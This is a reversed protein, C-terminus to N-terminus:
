RGAPPGSASSASWTGNSSKEVWRGQTLSKGDASLVATLSYDNPDGISAFTLTRTGRDYVCPGSIGKGSNASSVELDCANSYQGQKLTEEDLKGVTLTGSWQKGAGDQGTFNWKGLLTKPDGKPAAKKGASSGGMSAQGQASADVNMEAHGGNANTTGGIKTCNPPVAFLAAASPAYSIQKIEFLVKEHDKGMLYTQKVPFGYKEELWMRAKGQGEPLSAEVVRSAIGNMTEKRVTALSGAQQIMEASGGVPDHLSPAYPSTYEQTTCLNSSLDLTYLRQAPFDYLVRLHMTGSATKLEVLEKPGNRNVTVTMPGMMNSDATFSYTQPPTSNQALAQPISLLGVVILSVSFIRM